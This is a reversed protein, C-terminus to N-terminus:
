HKRQRSPRFGRRRVAPPTRGAKVSAAMGFLGERGGEDTGRRRSAVGVPVAQEEVDLGLARSAPDLPEDDASSPAFESEAGDPEDREGFGALQGEGVALQGPGAPVRQGLPPADLANGGKGFRGPADDLLLLASPAAPPVRVVPQPAKLAVGERGDPVPRDRLDVAGVHQLDERRDPVHLRLGSPSHALADPRHQLPRDRHLHAHIIRTVPDQRHETGLAVDDLVHPRDSVLVHGRGDLPHPRRPRSRRRDLQRELKQHQRGRPRSFDPQRRPGLHVHSAAHPRYGSRPHLRLALVPDRQAPPRHLDEFSSSREAVAATEHERHPAPIRYRRRRQRLHELLVPDLGHCVTEPRREAVPRGLPGVVRPLDDLRRQRVHDGVLHLRRIRPRVQELTPPPQHVVPRSIEVPLHPM